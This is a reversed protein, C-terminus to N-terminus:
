NVHLAKYVYLAIKYQVRQKIPLWHLSARIPTIHCYKTVKAIVRAAYNQLKQLRDLQYQKAGHLLANCYDLKSIVYSKIVIACTDYILSNRVRSINRLSYWLSKCTANIFSESSLTRDFIAGLNRVKDM